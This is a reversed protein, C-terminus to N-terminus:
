KVCARFFARGGDQNQFNELIESSLCLKVPNKTIHNNNANSHYLYVCIDSESTLM